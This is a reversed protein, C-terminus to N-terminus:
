STTSAFLPTIHTFITIPVVIAYAYVKLLMSTNVGKVMMSVLSMTLILCSFSVLNIVVERLM